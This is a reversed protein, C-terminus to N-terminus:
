PRHITTMCPKKKLLHVVKEETYAGPGVRKTTRDVVNKYISGMDFRSNKGFTGRKSESENQYDFRNIPRGNNLNQPFYAPPTEEKPNRFQLFTARM